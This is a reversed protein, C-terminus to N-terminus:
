LRGPKETCPIKWALTSSHTAMAKELYGKSIRSEIRKSIYGSTLNISCIIIQNKIKKLFWWLKGYNNCWKVNNNAKKAVNVNESVNYILPPNITPWCLGTAGSQIQIRQMYDCYFLYEQHLLLFFFNKIKINNFKSERACIKKIDQTAFHSSSM